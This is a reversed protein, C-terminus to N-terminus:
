GNTKERLAAKIADMGKICDERVCKSLTITSKDIEEEIVHGCGEYIEEFTELAIKLAEDKTM